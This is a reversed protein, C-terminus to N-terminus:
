DASCCFSVCRQLWRDSKCIEFLLTRRFYDRARTDGPSARGPTVKTAVEFM